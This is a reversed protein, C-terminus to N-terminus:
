VGRDSVLTHCREMDAVGFRISCFDIFEAQEVPSLSNYPVIELGKQAPNMFRVQLSPRHKVFPEWSVGIEHDGVMREVGGFAWLTGILTAAGAGKALMTKM